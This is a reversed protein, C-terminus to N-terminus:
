RNENNVEAKRVITDCEFILGKFETEGVVKIVIENTGKHLQPMDVRIGLVKNIATDVVMDQDTLVAEGNVWMSITKQGLVIARADVVDGAFELVKYFYVTEVADKRLEPHWIEQAESQELGDMQSKYLRFNASDAAVWGDALNISDPLVDGKLCYWSKDSYFKKAETTRAFDLKEQDYQLTVKASLMAEAPLVFAIRNETDATGRTTSLSYKIMPMGAVVVSDSKMNETAIEVGNLLVPVTDQSVYEITVLEPKIETAITTHYEGPLTNQIVAASDMAVANPVLTFAPISDNQASHKWSGDTCIIQYVKPKRVGWEILRNLALQTWTDEYDKGDVFTMLVYQYLESAKKYFNLSLKKGALRINDKYQKQQVPNAKMAESNLQKSVNVFKEIQSDTVQGAHDYIAGALYLLQTRKEIPLDYNNGEKILAIYKEKYSDAKNMLKKVRNAGGVLHDKWKTLQNVKILSQPSASLFETDANSIEADLKTYYDIYDDFYRFHDYASEVPLTLGDAKYSDDAVKFSDIVAHMEEYRQQAFLTDARAIYYKMKKVAIATLLDASPDKAFLRRAITEYDSEDNREYYILAAKKLFENALEHDPYTEEFALIQALYADQAGADEYNKIGKLMINQRTTEDVAMSAADAYLQMYMEAAKLKDNYPANEYMEIVQVRAVLAEPSTPYKEVFAMRLEEARIYDPISDALTWAGKYSAFVEEKTEMVTALDLYLDIARLTDGGAIFSDIAKYKFAKKQSLSDVEAALRLYQEASAINDGSDKYTKAQSQIASLLNQRISKRTEEPAVESAARYYSEAEKYNGKNQSIEALRANCLMQKDPELNYSLLTNFNAYAADMNNHDYNSEARQFLIRVLETENRQPFLTQDLLKQEHASNAAILLSDISEKTYQIGTLEDLYPETEIREQVLDHFKEYDYYQDLILDQVKPHSKFQAVFEDITQAAVLYYSPNKTEEALNQSALIKNLAIQEFNALSDAGWFPAYALYSDALQSYQQYNEITKDDIFRNFYKPELFSYAKKLINLQPQIDKEQNMQFWPSDVTYNTTMRHYEETILNEPSANGRVRDPYRRYITIISDIYSPSDLATPYLELMANYLDIAQMPASYHLKLDISEMLVKQAYDDNTLLPVIEKAMEAAQSYQEFDSGDSEILGFAINELADAEFFVKQTDLSDADMTNLLQTFDSIAADFDGSSFRAWGRQFLGYNQLPDGETEAVMNFYSAAKEFLPHPNKADLALDFYTTGLRYAAETHYRSDPFDRYIEEYAALIDSFRDEQLRLSDPWNEAFEINMQRRNDRNDIQARTAYYAWNYLVVDKQTFDPDNRLVQAYYRSVIDPQGVYLETSMEALNFYMRAIDPHHPNARVFDYTKDFIEQKFALKELYKEQLEQSVNQAFLGFGLTMLILSIIYKNM